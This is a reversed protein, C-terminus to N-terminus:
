KVRVAKCEPTQTNAEGVVPTLTNTIIGKVAVGEFGGHIPIGSTDVKQGNGDPTRIRKTVAAKAKIYGRKSSVRVTDGHSIGKENALREGIEIVQQPQTIA